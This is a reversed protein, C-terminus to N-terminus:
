SQSATQDDPSVLQRFENQWSPSQEGQLNSLLIPAAEPMSLSTQGSSFLAM